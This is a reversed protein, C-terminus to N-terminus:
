PGDAVDAERSAMLLRATQLDTILVNIYSGAIAGLIAPVKHEGFCMAIAYPVNKLTKINVGLAKDNYSYRDIDGNKDYFNMCIEGCIEEAAIEKLMEHNFYDTKVIASDSTPAGIGLLAIDARSAKKLVRSIHPEKMLETKAKRRSLRAPAHVQLFDGGFHEALGEVIANSNLRGPLTGIGGILPVFTVGSFVAEQPYNLMKALTSGMSVGVIDGDRLIQALYVAGAQGIADKTADPNDATDVILVEKLGFAEELAQELQFYKRGTIDHVTIQVIGSTRAAKLLKSITPRSINLTDSIDQQSLERNYYLDAVKLMMRQNDIINKKM